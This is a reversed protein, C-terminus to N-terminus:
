QTPRVLELFRRILRYRKPHERGILVRVMGRDCLEPTTMQLGQRTKEHLNKTEALLRPQHTQPMHSQIARLQPGIGGLVFRHAVTPHLLFHALQLRLHRLQQSRGFGRILGLIGLMSRPSSILQRLFQTEALLTQLLDPLGLGGQLSFSSSRRLALQCLWLDLRIVTLRRNRGLGRTRGLLRLPVEGIGVRPDHSITGRLRELLGIVALRDDITLVLHNHGRLHSLLGIIFLLDLRQDLLHLHIQFASGWALQACINPVEAFVVQTIQFSLRNIRIDSRTALLMACFGLADTSVDV